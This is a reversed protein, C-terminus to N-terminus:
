ECDYGVDGTESAKPEYGMYIEANEGFNRSFEVIRDKVRSEFDLYMNKMDESM